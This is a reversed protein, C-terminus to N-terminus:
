RVLAVSRVPRKLTLKSQGKAGALQVEIRQVRRYADFLGVDLARLAQPRACSFEYSAELDAHGSRPVAQAGPELLAAQVEAKSLTCQAAADAAFLPTGQGPNRLRALVEAAAKREAETRPAREFGLLNDLPVQMDILLKNGDIAVDLRMVGHEHAKGAGAPGAAILLACILGGPCLRYM